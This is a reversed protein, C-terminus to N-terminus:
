IWTERPPLLQLKRTMRKLGNGSILQKPVAIVKARPANPPFKAVVPVFKGIHHQTGNTRQGIPISPAFSKVPQKVMGDGAKMFSNGNTKEEKKENGYWDQEAPKNRYDDALVQWSARKVGGIGLAPANRALALQQQENALKLDSTWDDEDSNEEEEIFQGWGGAVASHATSLPSDIKPANNLPFDLQREKQPLKHRASQSRCHSTSPSAGDIWPPSKRNQYLLSCYLCEQDDKQMM